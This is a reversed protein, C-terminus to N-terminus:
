PASAGPPSSGASRGATAPREVSFREAGARLRRRTSPSSRDHHYRGPVARGVSSGSCALEPRSEFGRGTSSFDIVPGHRGAAPLYTATTLQPRSASDFRLPARTRGSEGSLRAAGARSSRSPCARWPEFGSRRPQLEGHQRKCWLGELASPGSRVPRGPTAGRHEETQAVDAHQTQSGGAPNSGAGRGYLPRTSATSVVSAFLHLRRSDFGSRRPALSANKWFFRM